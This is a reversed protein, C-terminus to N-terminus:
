SRVAVQQGAAALSSNQAESPNSSATFSAVQTYSETKASERPKTAQTEIPPLDDKISAEDKKPISPAAKIEVPEIPKVDIPEIPSINATVNSVINQLFDQSAKNADLNANGAATQLRSQTNPTKIDIRLPKGDQNAAQNTDIAVPASVVVSAQAVSQNLSNSPSESQQAQASTQSGGAQTERNAAEKDNAITLTNRKPNSYTPSEQKPEQAITVAVGEDNAPPSQTPQGPSGSDNSGSSNTDSSETPSPTSSTTPSDNTSTPETENGAPPQNTTQPNTEEASSGSSTSSGSPSSGSGSNGSPIIGLFAM